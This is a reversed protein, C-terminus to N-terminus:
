ARRLFARRIRRLERARCPRAARLANFLADDILGHRSLLCVTGWTVEAHSCGRAPLEGVLAATSPTTAIFRRLEHDEFASLMFTHLEALAEPSSFRPASTTLLLMLTHFLCRM